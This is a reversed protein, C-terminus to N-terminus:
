QLDLARGAPASIPQVTQTRYAASRVTPTGIARGLLNRFLPTWVTWKHGGDSSRVQDVPLVDALLQNAQRLRDQNGFGLYITPMARHPPGAYGQYWEWLAYFHREAQDEIDALNPAQWKQLGGAREVEAIVDEDGLYPALLIVGDVIDSHEMAYSSAGLGGMSAGVLWVHEYRGAIPEIVDAHLRRVVNQKRYYAFHADTAVVDYTPAIERVIELLGNRDFAEPGDGFGPLFVILGDTEGSAAHHIVPMPVKATKTIYCGGLLVALLVVTSARM